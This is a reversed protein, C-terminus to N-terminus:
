HSSRIYIHVVKFIIRHDSKSGCAPACSYGCQDPERRIHLRDHAESSETELNDSVANNRYLDFIAEGDSVEKGM